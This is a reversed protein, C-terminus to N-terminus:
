LAKLYHKELPVFGRRAFYPELDPMGAIFHSMVARAAGRDRAWAEFADLLDAGTRGGRAEPMVYWAHEMAVLAGDFLDPVVSALLIGVPRLNTALFIAGLDLDLLQRWARLYHAPGADGPRFLQPYPQQVEERFAHYFPLSLPLTDKSLKTVM